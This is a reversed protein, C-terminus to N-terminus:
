IEFDFAIQTPYDKVSIPSFSKSPKSPLATEWHPDVSRSRKMRRIRKPSPIDPPPESLRGERKRRRDQERKRRSKKPLNNLAKNFINFTRAEKSADMAAERPGVVSKLAARTEESQYECTTLTVCVDGQQLQRCKLGYTMLTKEPDCSSWGQGIVFFPQEPAVEMSAKEKTFGVSFNIRFIMRNKEIFDVHSTQMVMDASSTACMIFDDTVLNEVTKKSGNPLLIKTGKFFHTPIYTNESLSGFDEPTPARPFSDPVIPAPRRRFEDRAAKRAASSLERQIEEDEKSTSHHDVLLSNVMQATSTSPLDSSSVDDNISHPPLSTRRMETISRKKARHVASHVSQTDFPTSSISLASPPTLNHNMHFQNHLLSPHSLDNSILIPNFPTTIVSSSSSGQQNFKATLDRLLENYSIPPLSYQSPLSSSITHNSSAISNESRQPTLISFVDQTSSADLLHSLDSTITNLSWGGQGNENHMPHIVSFNALFQKFLSIMQFLIPFYPYISRNKRLF